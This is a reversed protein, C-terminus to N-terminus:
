PAPPCSGLWSSSTRRASPPSARAWTRVMRTIRLRGGHSPVDAEDGQRGEDAPDGALGQDEPLVLDLPPVLLGPRDDHGALNQLLVGAPHPDLGLAEALLL